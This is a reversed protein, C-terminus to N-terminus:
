ENKEEYDLYLRKPFTEDYPLDDIIKIPKSEVKDVYNEIGLATVVAEAWQWGNNSWVTVTFGRQKYRKLLAIHRKHPYLFKLPIEKDGHDRIEIKGEGPQYPNDLWMVLTDDCDVSVTLENKYVKM